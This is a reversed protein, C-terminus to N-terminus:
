QVHPICICNASRCLDLSLLAVVVLVSKVLGEHTALKWVGSDPRSWPLHGVIRLEPSQQQCARRSSIQSRRSFHYFVSAVLLTLVRLLDVVSAYCYCTCFPESGGLRHRLCLVHHSSKLCSERILLCFCFNKSM